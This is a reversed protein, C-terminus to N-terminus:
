EEIGETIEEGENLHMKGCKMCPIYEKISEYYFENGCECKIMGQKM